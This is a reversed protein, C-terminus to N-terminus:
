QLAGARLAGILRQVTRAAGAASLHSEDLYFSETPTGVRCRQADCFLDDLGIVTWRPNPLSQQFVSRSFAQRRLHEAMPVSMEDLKEEVRQPQRWALEYIERAPRLQQPVQVVVHVRVGAESYRRVTRRFGEAFALRSSEPTRPDSPQFGLANFYASNWPDTYYSWKGVLYVDRIGLSRVHALARENLAKCDRVRLGVQDLPMVDQLPPCARLGAFVGSRGVAAAAAEFADLLQLAHSDGLVAFSPHHGGANIPCTWGDARTHAFPLDFCQASRPPARFAAVVSEPVNSRQLWAVAAASGGVGMLAASAVAGAVLVRRHNPSPARRLPQEVCLWTIWALGLTTAVVLWRMEQIMAEAGSLRLFALVPQHWLYASYSILGVGVLPPSALVNGIWTRRRAWLLICATGLVAPLMWASPSPTSADIWAVSLLVAVLGLVALTLGATPHVRGAWGGPKAGLAALCGVGLEWARGPMLYFNADPYNRWGWEAIALSSAALGGIVGARQGLSRSALMLMLIPFLVYFQEEVGLSWTHLLPQQGALPGFYGADLALVVNSGFVSLSAAVRSFNALQAPTMLWAAVPLCVATVFVLAPLIRRIRRDYFGVLSFRGQEQERLIIGTILFGSIVFFVDVGIFGGPAGRWEAHFLIVALVAIARLGDIEPRYADARPHNDRM